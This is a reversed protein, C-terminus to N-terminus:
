GGASACISILCTLRTTSDAVDYVMAFLSITLWLSPLIGVMLKASFKRSHAGLDLGCCVAMSDQLALDAIEWEGQSCLWDVEADGLAGLGDALLVLSSVHSRSALEQWVKFREGAAEVSGPPTSRLTSFAGGFACSGWCVSGKWLQLLTGM